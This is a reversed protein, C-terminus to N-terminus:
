FSVPWFWGILGGAIAAGITTLFGNQAASRARSDCLNFNDPGPTCLNGGSRSAIAAGAVSGLLVGIGAHTMRQHRHLAEVAGPPLSGSARALQADPSLVLRKLDNVLRDMAEDYHRNAEGRGGSPDVHETLSWLPQGSRPDSITVDLQPDRILDHPLDGTAGSNEQSVVPNTFRIVLLIDAAQTSDVLAFYGWERMAQYFQDYARNPGGEYKTLDFYSEAGYTESGGNGIFANRAALIQRPVPARQSARTQQATATAGALAALAVCQMGHISLRSM